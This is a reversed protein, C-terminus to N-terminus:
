LCLVCVIGEECHGTSHLSYSDMLQKSDLGLGAREKWIESNGEGVGDLEEVTM